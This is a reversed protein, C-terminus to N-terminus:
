RRRLKRIFHHYNYKVLLYWSLGNDGLHHCMHGDNKQHRLDLQCVSTPLVIVHFSSLDKFSVTMQTLWSEAAAVFCGLFDVSLSSINSRAQSELPSLRYNTSEVAKLGTALCFMMNRFHPPAFGCVELFSPLLSLSLYASGCHRGHLELPCQKGWAEGDLVCKVVVPKLYLSVIIRNNM